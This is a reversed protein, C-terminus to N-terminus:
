QLLGWREVAPEAAAWKWGGASRCIDTVYWARRGSARSGEDVSFVVQKCAALPSDIARTVRLRGRENDIPITHEIKWDAEAGVQLDGAVAAIADQEAGQWRRGIYNLGATAAADTAVGVAFGVAPNASAVGTLGGAAVGAIEPVAKCGALLLLALSSAARVGTVAFLGMQRDSTRRVGV